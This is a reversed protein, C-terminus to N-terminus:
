ALVTGREYRGPSEPGGPWEANDEGTIPPDNKGGVKIGLIACFILFRHLINNPIRGIM